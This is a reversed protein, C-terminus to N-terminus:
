NIIECDFFQQMRGWGKDTKRALAIMTNGSKFYKKVETPKWDTPKWDGYEEKIINKKTSRLYYKVGVITEEDDGIINEVKSVQLSYVKENFEVVIEEIQESLRYNSM